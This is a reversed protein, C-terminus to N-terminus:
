RQDLAQPTHPKKGWSYASPGTSPARSSCYCIQAATIAGREKSVAPNLMKCKRKWFEMFGNSCLLANCPVGLLALHGAGLDPAISIFGRSGSTEDVATSGDDSSRKKDPPRFHRNTGAPSFLKYVQASGKGAARASWLTSYFPM